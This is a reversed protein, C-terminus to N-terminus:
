RRVERVWLQRALWNTSVDDDPRTHAGSHWMVKIEHPGPGVSATAIVYASGRRTFGTPPSVAVLGGDVFIGYVRGEHNGELFINLEYKASAEIQLFTDESGFDLVLDPIEVWQNLATAADITQTSLTSGRARLIRNFSKSEFLTMGLTGDPVNDRDLGQNAVSAIEGMEGSIVDPLFVDDTTPRDRPFVRM